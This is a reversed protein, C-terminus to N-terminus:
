LDSLNEHLHAGGHPRKDHTYLPMLPCMFVLSFFFSHTKASLLVSWSVVRGRICVSVELDFLAVYSSQCARVIPVDLLLLSNNPSKDEPQLSPPRPPLICGIDWFSQDIM